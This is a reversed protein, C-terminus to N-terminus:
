EAMAATTREGEELRMGGRAEGERYAIASMGDEEGRRKRGARGETHPAARAAAAAGLGTRCSLPTAVSNEKDTHEQQRQLGGGRKRISWTVTRRSAESAGGDGEDVPSCTPWRSSGEERMGGGACGDRGGGRRFVGDAGAVMINAAAARYPSLPVLQLRTPTPTTAGCYALGAVKVGGLAGGGAGGGGGAGSAAAAAAKDGAQLIDAVRRRTRPPESGPVRLGSYGSVGAGAGAGASGPKAESSAAVGGERKLAKSPARGEVKGEAEGGKGGAGEKHDERGRKKGGGRVGAM